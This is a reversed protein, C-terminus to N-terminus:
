GRRSIFGAPGAAACAERRAAPTRSSCNGAIARVLSEIERPAAIRRALARARGGSRVRHRSKRERIPGSLPRGLGLAICGRNKRRSCGSVEARGEAEEELNKSVKEKRGRQRVLLDGGTCYREVVAPSQMSNSDASFAHSEVAPGANVVADVRTVVVVAVPHHPLEGHCSCWGRPPGGPPGRTCREKGSHKMRTAPKSLM